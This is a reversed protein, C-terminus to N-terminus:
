LAEDDFFDFPFAEALHTDVWTWECFTDALVTFSPLITMKGQPSWTRMEGSDHM